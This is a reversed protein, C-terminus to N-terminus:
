RAPAPRRRATAIARRLMRGSPKLSGVGNAIGYWDERRHRDAEATIWTHVIYRSVRYEPREAAAVMAALYLRRRRDVFTSMGDESIEIRMRPSGHRDLVRRFARLRRVGQTAGNGYPHFGIYRMSRRLEPQARFVRKAYRGPKASGSLGGMVVHSGPAVTDISRQAVLVMKAYLSPDPDNGWFQTSNPENWVEFNIVPVSPLEPHLRWFEGDVGYRAAVATAYAGYAPIRAEGPPRHLGPGGVSAWPTGYGLILHARIGHRALLGVRDDLAQWDFVHTGTPGPEHPEVEAWFAALRVTGFGAAAVDATYGDRDLAGLKDYVFTGNVGFSNPGLTRARAGAPGSLACAAVAVLLLARARM